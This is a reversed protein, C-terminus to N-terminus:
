IELDYWTCLDAMEDEGVYRYFKAPMHGEGWNALTGEDTVTWDYYMGSIDKDDPAGYQYRATFSLTSYEDKLDFQLQILQGESESAGEEPDMISWHINEAGEPAVFMRINEERAAEQSYEHWPNALGVSEQTEDEPSNVNINVNTQACGALAIASIVTIITTKTKNM